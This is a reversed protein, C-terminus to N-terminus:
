HSALFRRPDQEDWHVSIWPPNPYFGEQNKVQDLPEFFTVKCPLKLWLQIMHSFTNAIIALPRHSTEGIMPPTQDRSSQSSAKLLICWPSTTFLTNFGIQDHSQFIFDNNDGATRGTNSFCDRHSTCSFSGSNQNMSSIFFSPLSYYVFDTRITINKM